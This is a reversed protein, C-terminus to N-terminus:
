SQQNVALIRNAPVRFQQKLYTKFEADYDQLDIAYDMCALWADADAATLTLHRHAAPINIPGFNEQYRKPGGLWGCLFYYLKSRSETLDAAHMNRISQAHQLSDMADYFDNVLKLVGSEAGAAQFSADLQGFLM